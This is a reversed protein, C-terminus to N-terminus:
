VTYMLPTEARDSSILCSSGVNTRSKVSLDPSYQRAFPMASLSFM